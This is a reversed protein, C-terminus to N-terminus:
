AAKVLYENRLKRGERAFIHALDSARAGRAYKEVNECLHKAASLNAEEWAPHMRGTGDDGDLPCLRALVPAIEDATIM